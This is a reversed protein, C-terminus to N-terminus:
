DGPGTEGSSGGGAGLDRPLGADRALKEDIPPAGQRWGPPPTWAQQGTDKYSIAKPMPAEFPLDIRLGAQRIHQETTGRPLNISDPPNPSDGAADAEALPEPPPAYSEEKKGLTPTAGRTPETLRQRGGIMGAIQEATSPWLDDPHVHHIMWADDVRSFVHSSTVDEDSRYPVGNADLWYLYEGGDLNSRGPSQPGLTSSPDVMDDGTRGPGTGVDQESLERRIRRSM